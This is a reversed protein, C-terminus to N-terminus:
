KEQNPWDLNVYYVHYGERIVDETEFDISEHIMTGGSAVVTYTSNLYDPYSFQEQYTHQEPPIWLCKKMYDQQPCDMIYVFSGAVIPSIIRKCKKCYDIM